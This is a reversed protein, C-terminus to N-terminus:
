DTSSIHKRENDAGADKVEREIEEVHVLKGHRYVTWRFTNKDYGRCIEAYGDAFIFLKWTM